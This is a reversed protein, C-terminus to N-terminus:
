VPRSSPSRRRPWTEDMISRTPKPWEYSAQKRVKSTRDLYARLALKSAQFGAYDIQTSVGDDRTVVLKKFLADFDTHDFSAPSAASAFGLYLALSLCLRIPTHWMTM